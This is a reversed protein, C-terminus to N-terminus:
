SVGTEMSAVSGLLKVISKANSIKKGREEARDDFFEHFAEEKVCEVIDKICHDLKGEHTKPDGTLLRDIVYRLAYNRINKQQALQEKIADLVVGFHGFGALSSLTHLLKLGKNRSEKNKILGTSQNVLKGFEARFLQEGGIKIIKLISECLAPQAKKDEKDKEYLMKKLTSLVNTTLKRVKAGDASQDAQIGSLHNLMRSMVKAIIEGFMAQKKILNAKKVIYAVVQGVTFGRTLHHVVDITANAYNVVNNNKIAAPMHSAQQDKLKSFLLNELLPLVLQVAFDYDIQQASGCLLNLQSIRYTLRLDTLDPLVRAMENVNNSIFPLSPYKEQTEPNNAFEVYNTILSVVYKVQEDQPLPRNVFRRIHDIVRILIRLTLDNASQAAAKSLFIQYLKLSQTRVSKDKSTLLRFAAILLIEVNEDNHQAVLAEAAELQSYVIDYNLDNEIKKSRSFIEDILSLAPRLHVYAENNKVAVVFHKIEMFLEPDALEAFLDMIAETFFRTNSTYRQLITAVLGFTKVVSSRYKQRKLLRQADEYPNEVVKSNIKSPNLNERLLVLSTGLSKQDILSSLSVIQEVTSVFGESPIYKKGKLAKETQCYANLQGLILNSHTEIIRRGIISLRGQTAENSTFLFSDDTVSADVEFANLKLRAKLIHVTDKWMHENGNYHLLRNIFDFIREAFSRIVQPSGLIPIFNQLLHPNEVFILKYTELESWIFFLKAVKQVASVESQGILDIQPKLLDILRKTVETFDLDPFAIYFTTILELTQKRINKAKSALGATSSNEGEARLKDGLVTYFEFLEILSRVLVASYDSALIGFNKVLLKVFNLLKDVTKLSKRCLVKVLEDSPRSLEEIEFGVYSFFKDVIPKRDALPLGSVFDLIFNQKSLVFNKNKQGKTSYYLVILGSKLFKLVSARESHTMKKFDLNLLADKLQRKDKLKHFFEKLDDNLHDHLRLFVKICNEFFMDKNFLCLELVIDELQQKFGLESVHTMNAFVKSFVIYTQSSFPHYIESEPDGKSGVFGELTMSVEFEANSADGLIQKLRCALISGDVQVYRKFLEFLRTSSANVIKTNSSVVDGIFTYFQKALVTLNQKPALLDLYSNYPAPVQVVDVKLDVNVEYYLAMSLDWFVNLVTDVFIRDMEGTANIIYQMISIAPQKTANFNAFLHGM